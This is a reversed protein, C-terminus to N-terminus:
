FAWPNRRKDAARQYRLEDRMWSGQWGGPNLNRCFARHLKTMEDLNDTTVNLWIDHYITDFKTGKAPRWTFIDGEIVTVKSPVTPGVLRIVNPNAEIVTVSRVERKAAIGHLVMGLGLGAILVDGSARRLVEMNTRQEFRTDSMMVEGDVLLRAYSGPAVYEDRRCRMLTRESDAKTVTFHEIKVNGSAGQPVIKAMEPFTPPTRM